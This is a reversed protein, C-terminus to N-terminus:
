VALAYHPQSEIWLQRAEVDGAERSARPLLVEWPCISGGPNEALKEM